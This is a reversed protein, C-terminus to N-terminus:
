AGVVDGVVYYWRGEERVFDLALKGPFPDSRGFGLRDYAIVRRSTAAALTEPFSRWLEVSGLSDHFLLIPAAPEGRGDWIRAFLQGRGTEVQRDQVDIATM